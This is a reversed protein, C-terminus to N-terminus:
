SSKTGTKKSELLKYQKMKRYLTKRDIGLRKAIRQKNGSFVKIADEIMAKEIDEFIKNIPVNAPMKSLMVGREISSTSEMSLHHAKIVDSSTLAARELANYLERINGPWDLLAALSYM